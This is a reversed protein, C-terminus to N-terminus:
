IWTPSRRGCRLRGPSACRTWITAPASSSSIRRRQPKWNLFSLDLESATSRAAPTSGMSKALRFEPSGDPAKAGGPFVGRAPHVADADAPRGGLVAHPRSGDRFETRARIRGAHPPLRLPRPLLVQGAAGSDLQPDAPVPLRHDAHRHDIGINGLDKFNKQVLSALSFVIGYFAALVCITALTYAYGRRFIIDVDMLRYRVIAYALTLPILPLSLVSMKMYANPIAGMAYPLVYFLPSRCSAASPATACGSSSSACSPIKRRATNWREAGVRRGPLARDLLVMWVRDLMWRLEILPM